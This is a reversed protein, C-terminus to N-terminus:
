FSHSVRVVAFNVGNNPHKIGGNSFHQILLGVDIESATVYGIGIHDGFEFATSLQHGGNDYLESLLHAGVGGEAYWGVRSDKQLRFVPTIGIDTINQHSDTSRYRRGQWQAISLDWYGGIHLGESVSWKKDWMWQTGVRIMKTSNGTAFSYSMGDAAHAVRNAAALMVFFVIRFVPSAFKM